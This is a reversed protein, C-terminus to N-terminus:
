VSVLTCNDGTYGRPTLAYSKCCMSLLPPEGGQCPFPQNPSACYYGVNFDPLLNQCCMQTEGEPCYDTQAVASSLLLILSAIISTLQFQMEGPVRPPNNHFVHGPPPQSPTSPCHPAICGTKFVVLEGAWATLFHISVIPIMGAAGLERFGERLRFLELTKTWPLFEYRLAPTGGCAEAPLGWAM